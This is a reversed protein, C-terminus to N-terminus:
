LITVGLKKLLDFWEEKTIKINISEQLGSSVSVITASVIDVNHVNDREFIFDRIVTDTINFYLKMYSMNETPSSPALPKKEGRLRSIEQNEEWVKLEEQYDEFDQHYKEIEDATIKASLIELEVFVDEILKDM